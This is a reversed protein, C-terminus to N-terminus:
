EGCRGLGVKPGLWSFKFRPGPGKRLTFHRPHLASWGGSRLGFSFISWVELEGSPRWPSTIPHGQVPFESGTAQSIFLLLHKSNNELILRFRFISGLTKFEAIFRLLLKNQPVFNQGVASNWCSFHWLLIAILGTRSRLPLTEHKKEARWPLLSILVEFRIVDREYCMVCELGDVLDNLTRGNSLMGVPSNFANNLGKFASNFGM